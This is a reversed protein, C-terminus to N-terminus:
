DHIPFDQMLIPKILAKWIEYGKKNLHIGDWKFLDHNVAGNSDLMPDVINIYLLSENLSCYNEILKNAKEMEPWFKKRRKPPKISIFYIPIPKYATFVTDCFQRFSTAVEEATKKKSVLLGTIDNEGAYFIIAKPEYPKVIRDVYHTVDPIQSGGFGRNLVALPSMDEELNKWYVISSSGTFLIINNRPNNKRDSKEFKRISREWLTPDGKKLKRFNLLVSLLDQIVSM